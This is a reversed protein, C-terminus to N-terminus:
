QKQNESDQTNYGSEEPEDLETTSEEVIVENKTKKNMFDHLYSLIANNQVIQNATLTTLMNRVETLERAQAISHKNLDMFVIYIMLLITFVVGYSLTPASTFTTPVVLNWMVMIFWARAAFSLIELALARFFIASLSPKLTNSM